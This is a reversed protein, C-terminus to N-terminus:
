RGGGANRVLHAVATLRVQWLDSVGTGHEARPRFPLRMQFDGEVSVVQFTMLFFAMLQFVVDIMPTLNLDVSSKRNNFPSNRRM